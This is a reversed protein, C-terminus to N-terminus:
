FTIKLDFGYTASPLSFGNEIGQASGMSTTAEPDVGEPTNQHLIALNRGVASIKMSQLFGIKKLVKRPFTYGISVERLKVYSADYLFLSGNKGIDHRFYTEPSLWTQSYEGSHVGGYYIANPIRVGKPRDKDWYYHNAGLGNATHQAQLYGGREADSENLVWKSFWYEDRGELSQTTLGGRTGQYATGSWLKGGVKIDFLISASLDRWRFSTRLGGMWKPSVDGLFVGKEEYRRGENDVLIYGNEDRMADGSFISGFSHGVVLRVDAIHAGGLKMFDAGNNLELVESNNKAWNFDLKWEFDKTRVPVIGIALETGWNRVKGANMVANSYGSIGDVEANVIQDRTTKDYYTIDITARNDWFRLDAGFEWSTTSEPKLRANRKRNDSEFYSMNGLYTNGYRLGDLLQDFGADNGVSAFSARLKAYSLIKKPIKKYVETLVFSTGVSYYFYSRNSAPLSSSWDNRGTLDLYIFDMFGLSGTGFIAQKKKANYDDWSRINAGNNGLSIIDPYLLTAAQSNQKKFENNQAIAGLNASLNFKKWRKNYNLMAEFTYNRSTESFEKYLGDWDGPTYLNRFEWGQKANYDIAAKVRFRLDKRLQFNLAVDGRFAHKKDQNSLENLMWMPNRFGNFSTARGDSQKWPTLESMSIDRPMWAVLYIPNMDSGNRYSRNNAREHQYNANLDVNLFKVPKFDAHMNFQNRGIKNLGELIDDATLNTYSLRVGAMDTRKEITVTNTWTHATRYMETINGTNPSYTKLEGNRGIVEVGTMPMGWSNNDYKNTNLKNIGWPLNPDYPVERSVVNFSNDDLRFQSGTGYVNQYMPYQYLRSMQFNSSYTVGMGSKNGAKKTTIVIAGNAADSGYLAAANAGKLVVISEINDPNISNAPNGYDIGDDSMGSENMIPIGDIVYLPDNNGTISNTGRIRVSASGGPGNSIVQLGAVKGSLMGLFDPSRNETMSEVDLKQFATSISKEDRRIDMATVVTQQLMVADEELTVNLVKMEKSVNIAKTKYGIFSFRLIATQPIRLSFKGDMDTITGKNTNVNLVNVGLMPEGSADIVTGTLTREQALLASANFILLSIIILYKLSYRMRISIMRQNTDRM